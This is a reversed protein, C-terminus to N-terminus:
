GRGRMVVLNNRARQPVGGVVYYQRSAETKHGGKDTAKGALRAEDTLGTKRLDRLTYAGPGFGAKLVVDAFKRSLYDRSVPKGVDRRRATKPYCVVWPSVIGQEEKWRRFWKLTAEIGGEKDVWDAIEIAQENKRATFSIIVAERDRDTEPDYRIEYRVWPERDELRLVDGPRHSILYILDCARAEWEGLQATIKLYDAMPCVVERRATARRTVDAVPNSDLLGEDVAQAFLRSLVAKVYNYYAPSRIWRALFQRVERTRLAGVAITEFPDYTEVRYQLMRSYDARTKSSVPKGNRKLLTPLHQERWQRAYAAVTLTDDGKAAMEFRNPPARGIVSDFLAKQETTMQAYGCDSYGSHVWAHWILDCLEITDRRGVPLRESVPIWSTQKQLRELEEAQARALSVANDLQKQLERYEDGGEYEGGYKARYLSLKNQAARIADVIKNM